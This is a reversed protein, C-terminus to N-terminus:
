GCAIPRIAPSFRPISVSPRQDIQERVRSLLTEEAKGGHNKTLTEWAEPQAQQVWAVLDSPYLARARDYSATDGEDHLWGHSRLYDCIETEFHIERHLNM